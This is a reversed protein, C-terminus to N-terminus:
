LAQFRPIPSPLSFPSTPTTSPRPSTPTPFPEPDDPSSCQSPPTTLPLDPRTSPPAPPPTQADLANRPPPVRILPPLPLPQTPPLSFQQQQFCSFIPQSQKRSHCPASIPRSSITWPETPLNQLNTEPPAPRRTIARRPHRAGQSPARTDWSPKWRRWSPKRAQSKASTSRTSPPTRSHNPPARPVANKTTDRSTAAEANWATVRATAPPPSPNTFSAGNNM